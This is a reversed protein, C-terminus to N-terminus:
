RIVQIVTYITFALMLAAAGIWFIAFYAVAPIWIAAFRADSWLIRRKRKQM